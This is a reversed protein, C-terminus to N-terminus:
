QMTNLEDIYNQAKVAKESDPFLEVVKAYLDSAKGFDQNERYANALAYLAEGNTPDYEVAKSLNEIAVALDMNRLAEAGIEYYNSGVAGGVAGKLSLYLSTFEESASNTAYDSDIMDLYDAVLMRDMNAGKNYETAALMLYKYADKLGDSGEYSELTNKLDEIDKNLSDNKKTLDDVTATKVSLQERVGELEQNLEAKSMSVRIPGLLFWGILLGILLGIAINIMYNLVVPEKPNNPQIITDNGSKSWIAVDTNKSKKGPNKSEEFGLMDDVEKLYRNTIVSGIDIKKCAELEKKAKSWEEDKIYLLALLQRAQVLKPNLNAVKKLQIKAVDYSGQECYLLSLNFKKITQNIVDLGGQNSQITNIYDDAINKEPQYNKSIVWESLAAVTEGIEYYILGLLNRAQINTKNMKLSQRLSDIAGSLDRVEAKELGENYYYNSLFMIQKYKAVDVGCSTCFDKESLSCGCKFCKM